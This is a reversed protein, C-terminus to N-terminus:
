GAWSGRQFPVTIGALAIAHAAHRAERAGTPTLASDQWGATRRAVNAESTGHRMLVVTGRDGGRGRGAGAGGTM